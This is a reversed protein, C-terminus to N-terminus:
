ILGLDNLSIKKNNRVLLQIIKNRRIMLLDNIFHTGIEITIILKKFNYFIKLNTNAAAAKIIYTNTCIIYLVHSNM